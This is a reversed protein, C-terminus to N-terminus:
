GGAILRIELVRNTGARVSLNCVIRIDKNCANPFLTESGIGLFAVACRVSKGSMLKKIANSAENGSLFRM